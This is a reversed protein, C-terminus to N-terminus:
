FRIKSEDSHQQKVLRQLESVRKELSNDEVQDKKQVFYKIGSPTLIRVEKGGICYAVDSGYQYSMENENQILYLMKAIVM